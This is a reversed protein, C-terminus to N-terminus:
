RKHKYGSHAESSLLYLLAVDVVADGSTMPM